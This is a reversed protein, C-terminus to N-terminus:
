ALRRRYAQVALESLMGIAGSIAVVAIHWVLLHLVEFNPCHLELMALGALGALTGRALGSAAANVCFGRKLFLWTALSAPGAFALGAFLCRVGQHVFDETRYDHFLLLFVAILAICGSVAPLWPPMPRRSGPIAEAVCVMASLVILIGLVSFILGSEFASLQRVGSLGLITAGGFAVVACILVLGTALKWSAPMAAVPQLDVGISKSIRDLIAPDVEPNADRAQRLIDDIDGDRM